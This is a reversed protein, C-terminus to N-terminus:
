RGMIGVSMRIIDRFDPIAGSVVEDIEKERLPTASVGAAPNSVISVGLVYMGNAKAMIAEPVTSMGVLDAGMTGLARIEAPTEFQPGPMFAYVGSRLDTGKAEKWVKTILSRMVPCYVASMDPYRATGFMTADEGRLPSDDFFKIQDELIVIEGPRYEPNIAGAINTLILKRIGLARLVAVPYAVESMSYGEYYHFRGEMVAVPVGDLTGIRLVGQEGLTCEVFRPIEKYPIRTENELAISKGLGNGCVIGVVPKMRTRSMIHEASGKVQNYTM